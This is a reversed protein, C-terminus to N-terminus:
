KAHEAAFRQTAETLDNGVVQWDAAIARGDIEESSTHLFTIVQDHGFSGAVDLISGAGIVLATLKDRDCM